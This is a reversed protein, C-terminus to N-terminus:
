ADAHVREYEALWKDYPMLHSGNLLTIAYIAATNDRLVYGVAEGNLALVDFENAEIGAKFQAQHLEADLNHLVFWNNDDGDGSPDFHNLVTEMKEAVKFNFGYGYMGGIHECALGDTGVISLTHRPIHQKRIIDLTYENAM